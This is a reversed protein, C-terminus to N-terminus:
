TSQQQYGKMTTSRMKNKFDQLSVIEKTEKSLANWNKAINNSFSFNDKSQKLIFRNVTTQSRKFQNRIETPALNNQIKFGYICIQIEEIKRVAMLKLKSYLDNTNHRKKYNFLTKIIKKHMIELSYAHKMSNAMIFPSSYIIVSYVFSYYFSKLAEYPLFNKINYIIPLYSSLKAILHDTNKEFNLKNDVYIGLFKVVDKTQININGFSINENNKWGFLIIETKLLNLKLHHNQLYHLLKNHCCILKEKLEEVNKFQILLSTDDAYQVIELGLYKQLDHVYLSYLIPSLISGQPLGNTTFQSKSEKTNIKVCFTRGTLFSKILNLDNGEIQLNELKQILIEHNVCDFAKSLDLLVVCTNLNNNKNAQIKLIMSLIADKTSYNPRFGYQCEPILKRAQIFKMLRTLIIKEFLKSLNPLISIPRYNDTLKKDGKKYIPIITAHKFQEPFKGNNISLNILYKLPAVIYIAINKWLFMPIDKSTCTYKNKFSYISDFIEKENIPTMIITNNSKLELTQEQENIQNSFITCFYKSFINALETPETYSKSDDLIMEIRSGKHQTKNIAKNLHQWKTKIKQNL